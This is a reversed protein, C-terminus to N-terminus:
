VNDVKQVQSNLEPEPEFKDNGKNKEKAKKVAERVIQAKRSEQIQVSEPVCNPVQRGGKNKMGKMRYGTWCAEDMEETSESVKATQRKM